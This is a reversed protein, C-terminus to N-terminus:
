GWVDNMNLSINGEGDIFCHDSALLMTRNYSEDEDSGDNSARKIMKEVQSRRGITADNWGCKYADSGKHSERQEKTLHGLMYVGQGEENEFELLLADWKAKYDDNTM